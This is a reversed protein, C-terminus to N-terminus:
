YSEKKQADANWIVAEYIDTVWVLANETSKWELLRNQKFATDLIDSLAKLDQFKEADLSDISKLVKEKWKEIIRYNVDMLKEQAKTWAPAIEWDIIQQVINESANTIKAIQLANLEEMAKPNHLLYTFVRTEQQIQPKTWWTERYEKIIPKREKAEQICDKILIQLRSPILLKPVNRRFTVSRDRWYIHSREWWYFDRFWKKWTEKYRKVWLVEAYTIVEQETDGAMISNFLVEEFKPFANITILIKNILQKSLKISLWKKVSQLYKRKERPPITM